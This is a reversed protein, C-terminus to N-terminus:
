YLAELCHLFNWLQEAPLTFFFLSNLGVQLTGM